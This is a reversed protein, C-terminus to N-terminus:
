DSGLLASVAHVGDETGVVIVRDGVRFRFDPTPSAFVEQGRLVAVVSAGTRIATDGLTRDAFPSGPTIPLGETALGEVGKM